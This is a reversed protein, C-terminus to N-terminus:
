NTEEKGSKKNRGGLREYYRRVLESYEEPVPDHDVPVMERKPQRLTLEEELRKNIETLPRLIQMDVLDWKPPKGNEKNERRIDRASQRVESLENRLEPIEIVEEVERLRDEWERFDLGTLPGDLDFNDLDRFLDSGSSGGANDRNGGRRNQNRENSNQRQGGRGQATEPNQQERSRGQGRSGEGAQRGSEGERPEGERPEGERPQQGQGEGEEQQERSRGQGERQMNLASEMEREVQERLDDLQDAAFRMADEDNGIIKEAAQEVTDRLESINETLGRQIDSTEDPLNNRMLLSLQDLSQEMNDQQARRIGDYLEQSLLKESNEAERSVQEMQQLLDDLQDKQQDAMDLADKLNGEDSLSRFSNQRDQEIAQNLENQNSDLDRADRRMERMAEAFENATQEKYDEEVEELNRSARSGANAAQSLNQQELNRATEDMQERAQELQQQSEALEDNQNREMRQQVEDLDDILNRQEEQLRKLEREIREREAEEEADLLAIQLEQLRENLDSQRRALDKLRNLTQLQEAREGQQQAQQQQREAKSELEYNNRSDQMNLQDLQRQARNSNGRGQQQQRQQRAQQRSVQFENERLKQLHQLATQENLIADSLAKAIEEGEADKAEALSEAAGQMAENAQYAQGGSESDQLMASAQELLSLLEGQSDLVVQIDESMKEDEPKRRKLNWTASIVEKQSDLLRSISQQQEGEEGGEGQQQEQQQRMGETASRNQRFIEDFPRVTAFFLDSFNRRLEGEKDRDDAWLFYSVVQGEEVDLEEMRIIHALDLKNTALGDSQLAIHQPQEGALQYGIGVAELGYDDRAEGQLRMEEIATVETDGAPAKFKLAPPLNEMVNFVYQSPFQNVRGDQDELHLEYRFEGPENFGWLFQYQRADEELAKLVIDDRDDDRAKLVASKLPKNFQFDFTLGTGEVATLRRTNKITKDERGTFDPYDLKAKSNKLNPYEFVMMRYLDSEIGDYVVNYLANSQVNTLRYIYTPDDLSRNMTMWRKPGGPEQVVLKVDSKFDPFEASIILSTGRVINTDGPVVEISGFAFRANGYGSSENKEALQWFAFLFVSLSAGHFVHTLALRGNSEMEWGQDRSAQLAEALVRQQMYDLREPDNKELQESATELLKNLGPYHQEIMTVIEGLTLWDVMWVKVLVLVALVAATVGLVPWALAPAGALMLGIAVIACISWCIALGSYLKRRRHQQRYFTLNEELTKPENM